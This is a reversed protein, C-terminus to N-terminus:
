NFLGEQICEQRMEEFVENNLDQIENRSRYIYEEREVYGMDDLTILHYGSNVVDDEGASPIAVVLNAVDVVAIDEGVSPIAVDDDGVVVTDDVVVPLNAVDEEVAVPAVEGELRRAELQRERNHRRRNHGLEGCEGCRMEGRERRVRRRAVGGEQQQNQRHPNIRDNLVQRQEATLQVDVYHKGLAEITPTGDELVFRINTDPILPEIRDKVSGIFEDNEEGAILDNWSGAFRLDRTHISYFPVTFYKGQFHINEPCRTVHTHVPCQRHAPIDAINVVTDQGLCLGCFRVNCRTCTIAECEEAGYEFAIGCCPTLPNLIKEFEQFLENVKADFIRQRINDPLQGSEGGTQIAQQLQQAVQNLEEMHQRHLRQIDEEHKRQEDVLVRQEM